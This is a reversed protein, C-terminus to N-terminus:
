MINSRIYQLWQTVTQPQRDVRLMGEHLAFLEPAGNGNSFQYFQVNKGICLAGWVKDDQTNGLSDLYGKLQTEADRLARTSNLYSSRKLELVLFNLRHRNIIRSVEMDSRGGQLNAEHRISFGEYSCFIEGFIISWAERVDVELPSQTIQSVLYDGQPLYQQDMYTNEVNEQAPPYPPHGRPM